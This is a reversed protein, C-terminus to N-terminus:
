PIFGRPGATQQVRTADCARLRRAGGWRGYVRAAAARVKRAIIHSGAPPASGPFILYTIGGAVSDHRPNSPLGLQRALAISGEGIRGKPGVDAFVAYASRGNAHNTVMALDGLHIDYRAAFDAPLAIYPVRAADIYKRPNRPDDEQKSLGGQQLSTTSVYYGRYPGSKQVVPDGHQDTVVATWSQSQRQSQGQGQTQGSRANASYDLGRNRPGYANPAGDADITMGATFLVAAAVPAGSGAAPVLSDAPPTVFVALDQRRLAFSDQQFPCGSARARQALAEDRRDGAHVASTMLTVAFILILSLARVYTKAALM